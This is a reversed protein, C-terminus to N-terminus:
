AGAQEQTRVGRAVLMQAIAVNVNVEGALKEACAKDEDTPPQYNWQYKM